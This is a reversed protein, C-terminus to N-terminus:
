GLGLVSVFRYLLYLISVVPALSRFLGLCGCILYIVTRFLVIECVFQIGLNFVFGVLVYLWGVVISYFINDRSLDLEILVFSLV